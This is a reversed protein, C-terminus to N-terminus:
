MKAVLWYAINVVNIIINFFRKQVKYVEQTSTLAASDM